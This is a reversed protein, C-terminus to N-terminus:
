PRRLHVPGINVLYLRVYQDSFKGLPEHGIHRGSIQINVLKASLLDCGMSALAPGLVTIIPFYVHNFRQYTQIIKQQYVGAARDTPIALNM